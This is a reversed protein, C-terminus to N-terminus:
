RSDGPEEKQTDEEKLEESKPEESKPEEQKPEQAKVDSGKSRHLDELDELRDRLRRKESVTLWGADRAERLAAIAGELDEADERLRSLRMRFRADRPRNLLILKAIEEAQDRRDPYLLRLRLEESLWSEKEAKVLEELILIAEEKKGIRQLAFARALSLGPAAPSAGETWAIVASPNGSVSHTLAMLLRRPDDPPLSDRDAVVEFYPPIGEILGEGAAFVNMDWPLPAFAPDPKEGRDIAARTLRQRFPAFDPVAEAASRILFIGEETRRERLDIEGLSAMALADSLDGRMLGTLEEKAESSKGADDALRSWLLKAPVDLYPATRLLAELKERSERVRELERLAIAADLLAWPANWELLARENELVRIARAGRGRAVQAKGYHALAKVRLDKSERILEDYLSESADIQGLVLRTNAELLQRDPDFTQASDEIASLAAHFRGQTFLSQARLLGITAEPVRGQAWSLLEEARDFDGREMNMEHLEELAQEAWVPDVTAARYSSDSGDRDGQARLIRAELLRLAGLDPSAPHNGIEKRVLDLAVGFDGKILAQRVADPAIPSVDSLEPTEASTATAPALLAGGVALALLAAACRATRLSDLLIEEGRLQGSTRM